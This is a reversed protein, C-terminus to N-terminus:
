RQGGGYEQSVGGGSLEPISFKQETLTCNLLEVLEGYETKCKVMRYATKGKGKSAETYKLFLLFHFGPLGVELIIKLTAEETQRVEHFQAEQLQWHSIM